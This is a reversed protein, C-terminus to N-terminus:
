TKFLLRTAGNKYDLPGSEGLPLELTCPGLGGTAALVADRRILPLLRKAVADGCSWQSNFAKMADTWAEKTLRHWETAEDDAGPELAPTDCMANLREHAWTELAQITTPRDEQQAFDSCRIQNYLCAVAWWYENYGGEGLAAWTTPCFESRFRPASGGGSAAGEDAGAGGIRARKASKM